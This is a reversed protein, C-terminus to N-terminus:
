ALGRLLRAALPAAFSGLTVAAFPNALATTAGVLLYDAVTALACLTSRALLERAVRAL